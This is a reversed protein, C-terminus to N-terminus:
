NGRLDSTGGFGAVGGAPSSLALASGAALLVTLTATAFKKFMIKIGGVRPTAALVAVIANSDCTARTDTLPLPDTQIQPAATSPSAM